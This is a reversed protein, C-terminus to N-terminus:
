LRSAAWVVTVVILDVIILGIILGTTQRDDGYFEYSCNTCFRVSIANVNQCAPCVKTDWNM